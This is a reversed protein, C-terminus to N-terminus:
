GEPTTNSPVSDPRSTLTVSVTKHEYGGSGNARLLGVQITDGPKKSEIDGALQESSAVPSGNISVVIDGGVAVQTNETSGTIKGGRIGAREAPTGKQVSQV